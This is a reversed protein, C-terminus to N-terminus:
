IPFILSDLLLKNTRKIADLANIPAKPSVVTTEGRSTSIIPYQEPNMKDFSVKRWVDGNLKYVSHVVGMNIGGILHRYNTSDAQKQGLIDHASGYVEDLLHDEKSVAEPEMTGAAIHGALEVLRRHNDFNFDGLVDMSIVKLLPDAEVGYEKTIEFPSPFHEDCSYKLLDTPEDSVSIGLTQITRVRQPRDGSFEQKRTTDVFFYYDDNITRDNRVIVDKVEVHKEMVMADPIVNATIQQELFTAEASLESEFGDHKEM